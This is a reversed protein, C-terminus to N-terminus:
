HSKRGRRRSLRAEAKPSLGTDEPLALERLTRIARELVAVERLVRNRDLGSQGSIGRKRKAGTTPEGTELGAFLESLNISLANTVRVISGFSVNKEGREVHGMYTRHVGCM